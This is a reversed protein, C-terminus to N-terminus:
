AAEQYSEYCFLLVLTISCLMLLNRGGNGAGRILFPHQM